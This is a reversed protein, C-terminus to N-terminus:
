DMKKTVFTPLNKNDSPTDPFNVLKKFNWRKCLLIMILVSLFCQNEIRIEKNNKKNVKKKPLDKNDFTKEPLNITKKSEM